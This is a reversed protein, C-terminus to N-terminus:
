GNNEEFAEMLDQWMQEEPEREMMEELADEYITTDVAKDIDWQSNEPIDGNSDMVEYFDQIRNKAPDMSIKMVDAYVCYDVYEESQGSFDMLKQITTEKDDRALKMARLNAVEFKVLADRKEEIVKGSTTQRCCVADPAYDGVNMAIHLGQQEAVQGFGSNVFGVDATGKSVAEIVSQFGDMEVFEVTDMDVGADRILKEMIMHGTEPRVCAITKGEYDTLDKITDKNEETVVAQSGESITGGFIVFDSGQSVFTVTPIIGLPLIDIKGTDIATLGDNLSAISEFSMDLGEEEYYGMESALVVMAAKISNGTNGVVLSTPEDALVGMGLSFTMMVAAGAAWNGKWVNGRRRKGARESKKGIMRGLENKRGTGMTREMDREIEKRMKGRIGKRCSGSNGDNTNREKLTLVNGM